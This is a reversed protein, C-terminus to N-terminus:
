HAALSNEQQFWRSESRSKGKRRSRGNPVESIFFLLTRLHNWWLPFHNNM